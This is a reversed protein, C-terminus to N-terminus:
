PYQFDAAIGAYSKIRTSTSPLHWNTTSMILREKQKKLLTRGEDNLFKCTDQWPPLGQIAVRHKEEMNAPSIDTLRNTEPWCKLPSWLPRLLSGVTRPSTHLYTWYGWKLWKQKSNIEGVRPNSLHRVEPVSSEGEKCKFCEPKIQSRNLHKSKRTLIHNKLNNTMQCKPTIQSWVRGHFSVLRNGASCLNSRRLHSAKM